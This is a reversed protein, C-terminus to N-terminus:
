AVKCRTIETQKIGRFEKHEKVTGKITKVEDEAIFSSTKWTFVNGNEDVIKYVRTIGWDTEWSTLCVVSQVQVTIRDGINGIHQSNAESAREAARKREQEAKEAQYELERNYTPFLSALIGLNRGTVYELSCVTKLNHMYNNDKDQAMVWAVANAVLQVTDPSESNFSVDEMEKKLEKKVKETMWWCSGNEISYYDFSRDATSRGSDQTRVYGFHKITEAVYRLITESKYYMEGRGGMPVEGQILEDFLSIYQAVAEASLGNTFDNLCSKGVQKFEGTEENMVIYTDKRYRKSNCHECIPDTTYYREPVEIEGIRNIINGKATHEISAIFKWGNVVAKGEAEVIIFRATYKNGQEDKLERFEEGVQRYSFECGFQKCKNFIRTLKKELRDMNAEYISYQAM